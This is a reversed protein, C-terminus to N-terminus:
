RVRKPPATERMVTVVLKAGRWPTPREQIVVRIGDKRRWVINGPEPVTQGYYLADVFAAEQIGNELARAQAHRSVAVAGLGPVDHFYHEM